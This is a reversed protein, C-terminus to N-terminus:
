ESLVMQFDDGDDSCTGSVEGASAAEGVCTGWGSTPGRLTVTTDDVVGGDPLDDMQMTWESLTFTCAAEDFTLTADMPNDGMNWAAGTVTWTGITLATCTDGGTPSDASDAPSTPYCALALLLTLM